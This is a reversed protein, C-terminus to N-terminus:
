VMAEITKCVADEDNSGIVSTAIAKLDDHANSMAYSEDCVSFMEIDNKGDGFCIVYDCHLYEKLQLIASAKSVGQPMLELWQHKSYLEKEYVCHYLDKYTIYQSYLKAELDICTLYYIHGALLEEMSTVEKRRPDNMRTDLFQKMGESGYDKLYSFREKGDIISYVIPYIDHSILQTIVEKIEDNFYNGILINGTQYDSIFVGNHTIVPLSVEIGQTVKKSTTLSRATAYSFLVGNSSLDNIKTATNNSLTADSQLLTGDLDSVFLVKKGHM